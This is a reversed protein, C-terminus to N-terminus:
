IERMQGSAGTDREPWRRRRRKAMVMAATHRAAARADGERLAASVDTGQLTAAEDARPLAGAAGLGLAGGGARSRRKARVRAPGSRWESGRTGM